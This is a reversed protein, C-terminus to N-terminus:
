AAQSAAPQHPVVRRAPYAVAIVASLLYGAAVLAWVWRFRGFDATDRNGIVAVAVATGLTQMLRRATQHTANAMALEDAPVGDLAAATSTMGVMGTGWGFIVLGPLIAWWSPSSGLMFLWLIMGAGTCIGGSVLVSRYGRRDAYSGVFVSNCAALMAITIVWGSRSPSWGWEDQLFIPISFFWAFITLQTFLQSATAVTFSRRRLTGLRLLPNAVRRCRVLFATGLVVATVAGAAVVPHDVGLRASQTIALTGAAVAVTAEVAGVVDVRSSRDTVVEDFIRPAWWWAAACLPPTICFVLRWSTLSLLNGAILPGLLSAGSGAIGLWGMAVGRREAPVLPLALALASAMVAAGAGGQVTRAAILVWPNPALASALAAVAFGVMGLRYLRRRGYRDALRGGVLLLSALAVAYGSSVWALTTREFSPFAKEISPFAVALGLNDLITVYSASALLM